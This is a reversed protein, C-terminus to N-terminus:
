STQSLILFPLHHELATECKSSVDNLDSRSQASKLLREASESNNVTEWESVKTLCNKM